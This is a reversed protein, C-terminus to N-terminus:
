AGEDIRRQYERIVQELVSNWYYVKEFRAALTQEVEENRGNLTILVADAEPLDHDPSYIEINEQNMAKQDIGYDVSLTLNKSLQVFSHGCVGYGYFAVHDIKKEKFFADIGDIMEKRYIVGSYAQFSEAGFRKKYIYSGGGLYLYRCKRKILEEMFKVYMLLGPSYQKLEINYSFNEFFVIDETQCFFAVAVPTEGAKMLMADTVYYRDLYESATLKYDTGHTEKKWNFYTEVVSDPITDKAYLEIKLDGIREDLWRLKRRITARDRREARNMLEDFDGPLPVRIDNVEELFDGYPNGCRILEIACIHKDQFVDRIVSEFIKQPLPKGWINLKAKVDDKHIDLCYKTDSDSYSITHNGDKYILDFRNYILNDTDFGAQEMM